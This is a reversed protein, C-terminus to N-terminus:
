RVGFYDEIFVDLHTRYFAILLAWQKWNTIERVSSLSMM